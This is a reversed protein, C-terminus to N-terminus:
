TAAEVLQHRRAIVDLEPDAGATQALSRRAEGLLGVVFPTDGAIEDPDGLLADHGFQAAIRLADAHALRGAEADLDTDEGPKPDVAGIEELGRTLMEAELRLERGRASRDALRDAARRWANFASLYSSSDIKAYRDLATRHQAPRVLRLQDAQGHVAVLRDSLEALVSVPTPAGGVFARSRGAASVVRRLLLSGDEDIVGGADDVRAVTLPDAGAPAVGILLRGDVTAQPAGSRVRTADARGGFLLLLASVLMTKGAGTEGTLVTLGPGLPLVAEDIVGLDGIRLEDLV